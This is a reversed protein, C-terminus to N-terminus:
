PHRLARAGRRLVRLDLGDSRDLGPRARDGAVVLRGAGDFWARALAGPPNAGSRRRPPRWRLRPFAGPKRVLSWIVHRYDIRHRGKGRLRPIRHIRRQGYYVDLHELFLKVQVREKIPQKSWSDFADKASRVALNLEERSSM